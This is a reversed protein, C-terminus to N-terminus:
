KNSAQDRSEQCQAQVGSPVHTARCASDTKNVHQGGAGQARYTDIRVEAMNLTFERPVDPMVIVIASSSHLRGQKETEPVRQVKHVGSEHKFYKYVDTGWIYFSGNKCGKSISSDQQFDLQKMRFNMLRCYNKYMEVLDEAFLSSESGGSASQIEVRCDRADADVKPLINEIIEDTTEGLSGELDEYESEALMKLEPDKEKTLIEQCEHMSVFMDKVESYM